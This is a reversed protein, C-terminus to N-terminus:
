AALVSTVGAAATLLTGVGLMMLVDRKADGGRRSLWGALLCSGGLAALLWAIDQATM